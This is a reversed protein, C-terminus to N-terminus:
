KWYEYTRAEKNVIEFDQKKNNWMSKIYEVVYGKADYKYNEKMSNSYIKEVLLNRTNFFYRTNDQCDKEPYCIREKTLNGRENYVNVLTYLLKDRSDYYTIEAPKNQQNFKKVTKEFTGDSKITTIVVEGPRDVYQTKTFTVKGSSEKKEKYIVRNLSDYKWASLTISSDLNTHSHFVVYATKKLENSLLNGREDYTYRHTYTYVPYEEEMPKQIEVSVAVRGNENYQYTTISSNIGDGAYWTKKVLFGNRDYELIKRIVGITKSEGMKLYKCNSIRNIKINAREAYNDLGEEQGLVGFPILVSFVLLIFYM